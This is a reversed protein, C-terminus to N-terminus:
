HKEAVIKGNKFSKIMKRETQKKQPPRIQKKKTHTSFLELM